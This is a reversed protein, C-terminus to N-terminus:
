LKIILVWYWIGKLNWYTNTSHISISKDAQILLEKWQGNNYSSVKWGTVQIFNKFISPESVPSTKQELTTSFWQACDEAWLNSFPDQELSAWPHTFNTNFGLELALYFWILHCSSDWSLYQPLFFLQFIIFEKTRWSKSYKLAWHISHHGGVSLFAALGGKSIGSDM